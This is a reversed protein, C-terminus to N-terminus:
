DLLDDTERLVESGDSEDAGASNPLRRNGESDEVFVADLL